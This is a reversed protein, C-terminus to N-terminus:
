SISGSRSAAGGRCPANTRTIGLVDGIDETALEEVERLIFVLTQRLPTADLRGPHWETLCPDERDRRLRDYREVTLGHTDRATVRM